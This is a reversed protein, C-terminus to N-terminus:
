SSAAAPQKEDEISVSALPRIAPGALAEGDISFQSGHCPCDWCTEFPNWQVICGAHTCAASRAHLKGAEDRYAAVKHLGRGVIGGQGPALEDASAIEASGLHQAVHGAVDANERLYEGAARLTVRQPLYVDTWRTPRELVLDRLLMGAMAGTTMGQGSDGTVVFIRRDGPNRGVYPAYDVPEMVQGSWRYEIAGLQPARSRTWAELRVFREHQDRGHGSKHDEGGSILWDHAADADPQLRVYHYPDLTDWCLADHVAGKPVRAAIVYTRYPAQKTHIAIRDNVPCNTAVIAADAYLVPGDATTIVVSGDREELRTAATESFLHGGDRRICRLLGDLYKLPHFRAQDPFCLCRPDDEGQWPTEGWAIGKVGIQRCAEFERELLEVDTEAARILFGTVRRFDCDIAEARQIEEIRDIAATQSEYYLRAEREGRLRIHESYFDDLEAALHATTRASMGGALPGRDIVIVRKGAQALEYAASLGAIGAGIIAVDANADQTLPPAPEIAATAMWLSTSRETSANM